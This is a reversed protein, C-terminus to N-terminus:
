WSSRGRSAGQDRSSNPIQGQLARQDIHQGCGKYTSIFTAEGEVLKGLWQALAAPLKVTAGPLQWGVIWLGFVAFISAAQPEGSQYSVAWSIPLADDKGTIAAAAKPEIKWLVPEDLSITAPPSAQQIIFHLMARDLAKGAETQLFNSLDPAQGDRAVAHMVKWAILAANRRLLPQSKLPYDKFPGHDLNILGMTDWSERDDVDSPMLHEPLTKELDSGFNNDCERCMLKPKPFDQGRLEPRGIYSFDFKKGNKGNEGFMRKRVSNPVVHSDADAPKVLCRICIMQQNQTM